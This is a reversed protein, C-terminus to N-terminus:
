DARLSSSSVHALGGVQNRGKLAPEDRQENSRSASPSRSADRMRLGPRLLPGFFGRGFGPSLTLSLVLGVFSDRSAIRAYTPIPAADQGM